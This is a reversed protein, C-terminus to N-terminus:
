CKRETIKRRNIQSRGRFREPRCVFLQLATNRLLFRKKKGNWFCECLENSSPERRLNRTCKLGGVVSLQDATERPETSFYLPPKSVKLRLQLIMLQKDYVPSSCTM